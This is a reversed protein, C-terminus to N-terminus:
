AAYCEGNNQTQMLVKQIRDTEELGLGYANLTKATASVATDVDTFGAKALETNKKLFEIAETADETIPVGASLANYLTNGLDAATVGSSDSLDLMQKQLNAMDVDVDGFLTSANALTTEFESGFNIAAATGGVFAAGIAVASTKAVTAMGGAAKKVIGNSKDLDSELNGNDARVEYTVKGDSM